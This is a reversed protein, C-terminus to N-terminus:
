FYVLLNSIFLIAGYLHGIVITLIIVKKLSVEDHNLGKLLYTSYLALPSITIPLLHSIDLINLQYGILLIANALIYFCLYIIWINEPNISAALTHKGVSRDAQIDPVQNVFLINAVVLGYSLGILISAMILSDDNYSNLITAGIVVLAWALAISIEGALGRSMLKFPPASYAWALFIGLFGIALLLITTLYVLTIGLLISLSFMILALRNIDSESFIGNQIMRSGGTFPYIRDINKADSGNKSDHYDNIMNGAAHALLAVALGAIALRWDSSSPNISYGILYGVLTISLFSPRSAQLYQQFTQFM